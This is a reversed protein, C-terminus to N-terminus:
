GRRREPGKPTAVQKPEPVLNVETVVRSDETHAAPGRYYKCAVARMRPVQRAPPYLGAAFAPNTALQAAGLTGPGSYGLLCIVIREDDDGVERQAPTRFVRYVLILAGDSGEGSALIVCPAVVKNSPLEAVGFRKGQGQWGFSSLV